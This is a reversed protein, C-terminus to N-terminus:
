QGHDHYLFEGRGSRYVLTPQDYVVVPPTNYAGAPVRYTVGPEPYVVAPPTGAARTDYHYYGPGAEIATACGGLLTGFAATALIAKMPIRTM